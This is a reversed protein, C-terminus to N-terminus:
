PATLGHRTLASGIRDTEALITRYVWTYHDTRALQERARGEGLLETLASLELHCVVLHLYTSDEGRAGEPPEDPVLPYLTKLEAIAATVKEDGVHNTLFWHLQEHLFTALQTIDDNLYQTNLTLVPHSHPLVRSQILVDRTFLWKDLDYTRLLRELQERGQRALDTDAHLRIRVEESPPTCPNAILILLGILRNM